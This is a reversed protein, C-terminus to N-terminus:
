LPSPRFPPKNNFLTSPFLFIYKYLTMFSLLVGLTLIAFLSLPYYFPFPIPSNDASITRTPPLNLHYCGGRTHSPTYRFRCRTTSTLSQRTSLSLLLPFPHSSNAASEFPLLRRQYSISCLPLSM